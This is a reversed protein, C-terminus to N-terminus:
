VRLKPYFSCGERETRDLGKKKIIVFNQTGFNQDNGNTSFIEGLLFVVKRVKIFLKDDLRVKRKCNRGGNISKHGACIQLVTLM